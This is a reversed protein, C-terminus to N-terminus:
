DGSLELLQRYVRQPRELGALRRAYWRALGHHRMGKIDRDVLDDDAGRNEFDLSLGSQIRDVVSRPSELLAENHVVVCREPSATAFRLIKENYVCYTLLANLAFYPKFYIQRGARRLMSYITREPDRFIFAFRAAPFQAWFDLLLTADPVKFGWVGTPPMSQRVIETIRDREPADVAIMTHRWPRWSTGNRKLIRRHLALLEVHEFHGYPNAANAGVLNEGFTVGTASLVRALLSTNSRHMGCVVLFPRPSEIVVM